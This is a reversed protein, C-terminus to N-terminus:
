YSLSSLLLGLPFIDLLKREQDPSKGDRALLQILRREATYNYYIGDDLKPETVTAISPIDIIKPLFISRHPIRNMIKAEEAM